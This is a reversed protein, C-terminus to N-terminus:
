PTQGSAALLRAAEAAETAERAKLVTQLLDDTRYNQEAESLLKVARELAYSALREAGLRRAIRVANRAQVLDLPTQRDRILPLLDPAFKYRLAGQPAANRLIVANSPQTVAFYPEATIFMAFSDLGTVAAVAGTSGVMAVEGLNHFQGDVTAAWLVYTLYAPGLVSAASLGKLRVEIQVGDPVRSVEAKGHAKPLLWTGSFDIQTAEGSQYDIAATRRPASVMSYALRSESGAPPRNQAFASAGLLLFCSTIALRMM